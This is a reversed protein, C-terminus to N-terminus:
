WRREWRMWAVVEVPPLQIREHLSFPLPVLPPRVQVWCGRADGRGMPQATWGPSWAGLVRQAAALGSRNVAEQRACERAAASAVMATYGVALLQWGVLVFLFLLPLGAVLEVTEAGREDQIAWRWRRM